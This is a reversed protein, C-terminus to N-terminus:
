HRPSASFFGPRKEDSLHHIALSSIIADFPGDPIVADFSGQVATISYKQLRTKAVDLMDASQDLLTMSSAPSRSLIFESFIGTGCGLDLIRAGEPITKEVLMTATGYFAGFDPVLRRRPEDYTRPDWHTQHDM